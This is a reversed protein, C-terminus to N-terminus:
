ATKASKNQERVVDLFPTPDLDPRYDKSETKPNFYGLERALECYKEEGLKAVSWPPLPLKIARAKEQLEEARSKPQFPKETIEPM